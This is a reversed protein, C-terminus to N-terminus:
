FFLEQVGDFLVDLLALKSEHAVAEGVLAIEPVVTSEWSYTWNEEVPSVISILKLCPFIGIDDVRLSLCFAVVVREIDALDALENPVSALDLLDLNKTHHSQQVLLLCIPLDDDNIDVVRESGLKIIDLIDLTVKRAEESCGVFPEADVLNWIALGLVLECEATLALVLLVSLLDDALAAICPLSEDSALLLTAIDTEGIDGVVARRVSDVMRLELLNRLAGIICWSRDVSAHVLPEEDRTCSDLMCFCGHGM